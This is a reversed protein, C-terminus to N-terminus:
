RAITALIYRGNLLPHHSSVFSLAQALTCVLLTAKLSAERLMAEFDAWIYFFHQLLLYLMHMDRRADVPMEEALLEQIRCLVRLLKIPPNTARRILDSVTGDGKNSPTLSSSPRLVSGARM